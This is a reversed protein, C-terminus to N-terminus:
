AIRHRNHEAVFSSAHDLVHTGGHLPELLAIVDDQRPIRMAAMAIVAVPAQRDQALIVEGFPRLRHLEVAGALRPARATFFELVQHKEAGEALIADHRLLLRDGDGAINGEVAGAQNAAAHHGADPRREVDRADPAGIGHHHDAAARDAEGRNLARAKGARRFDNRDVDVRVFERQGLVHTCRM